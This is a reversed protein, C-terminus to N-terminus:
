ALAVHLWSAAILQHLRTSGSLTSSICTSFSPPPESHLWSAAYALWPDIVITEFRGSTVTM